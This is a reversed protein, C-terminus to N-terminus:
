EAAVSEAQAPMNLLQEYNRRYFQDKADEDIGEMTREFKGIPDKTGEPHPYDSSFMFLDAGADRIMHGVDEGPFPTFKMARRIQESPTLELDQLYPDTRRFSKHAYDLQRLFDPVWGAGSEVVAGRLQPFRLFVGDYVMHTLFMQPAYWLTMYDPFRLNEGGGHIDPARERGNNMYASSPRMTGPGIHLTFPIDADVLRQWFPDYDPHGPSREKGPANSPVLVAGAGDALATELLDLARAPNDLPIFAIFVLRDDAACFDAQAKNLAYAAKYLSDEDKARRILGLGFTPFVLQSGFGLCNLADVREEADFAGYGAWGKHGAIVNSRAEDRKEPDTKREKAKDIIGLIRKGTEADGYLSGLSDLLEKDLYPALWDGTEMTHSDADLIVREGAYTM